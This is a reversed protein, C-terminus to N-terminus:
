LHNNQEVLRRCVLKERSQLESTHEESRMRAKIVMSVCSSTMASWRIPVTTADTNCLISSATSGPILVRSSSASPSRQNSSCPAREAGLSVYSEGPAVHM